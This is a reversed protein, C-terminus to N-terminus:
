DSNRVFGSTFKEMHSSILMDSKEGKKRHVAFVTYVRASRRM